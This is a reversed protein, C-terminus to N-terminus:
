LHVIKINLHFYKKHVNYYMFFLYEEGNDYEECYNHAMGNFSFLSGKDTKYKDAIITLRNM